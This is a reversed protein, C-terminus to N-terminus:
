LSQKLNLNQELGFKLYSYPFLKLKAARPTCTNTHILPLHAAKLKCAFQAEFNLFKKKVNNIFKFYIFISYFLNTCPM